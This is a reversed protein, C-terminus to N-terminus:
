ITGDNGSAINLISWDRSTSAEATNLPIRANAERDVTIDEELRLKNDKILRCTRRSQPKSSLRSSPLERLSLLISNEGSNDTILGPLLPFYQDSRQAQPNSSPQGMPVTVLHSQFHMEQNCRTAHVQANRCLQM